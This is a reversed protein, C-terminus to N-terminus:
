VAFGDDPAVFVYGSIASLEQQQQQQQQQSPRLWENIDAGGSWVYSHTFESNTVSIPAIYTAKDAASVLTPALIGSAVLAVIAACNTIKM